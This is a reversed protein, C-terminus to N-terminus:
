DAHLHEAPDSRTATLAAYAVSAAAVLLIVTPVSTFTMPDSPSVGYLQGGIRRTVVLAVGVGLVTGIGAVLLGHGVVTRVIRADTAGLAMRIAIERLSDRVMSVFLSVCGLVLLAIGFLALGSSAVAALREARVRDGLFTDLSQVDLVQVDPDLELILDRLPAIAGDAAGVTRVYVTRTGIGDTIPRWVCGRPEALLDRCRERAVVGVVRTPEGTYLFRKGVADGGPWLHDALTRNVVVDRRGDDESPGRGAVVPVRVVDFIGPTSPEGDVDIAGDPDDLHAATGIGGPYPHLYMYAASTAWPQARVRNLIEEHFATRDSRHDEVPTIRAMLLTTPDAYEPDADVARAFGKAYLAATVALVVALGVQFALLALRPTPRIRGWGWRSADGKIAVMPHGFVAFMPLLALLLATGSGAVVSWVLLRLDVAGATSLPTSGRIPTDLYIAPTEALATAVGFGVTASAVATAGALLLAETALQRMVRSRGAGLATRLAIERRRRAARGFFFNAVNTCAAILILGCVALLAGLFSWAEDRRSIRVERLPGVHIANTEITSLRVEPLADVWRQARERAVEIDLGPELRGLIPFFTVPSRLMVEMGVAPATHMPLWLDTPTNWDLTLGEYVEPMVGIIRGEGDQLRIPRGVVDPDGGFRSQWLAWSLVVVPQAGEVNDEPGILRGVQPRVGLLPFYSGSVFQYVVEDGWGEGGAYMALKGYTAVEVFADQLERLAEYQPHSFSFRARSDGERGRETLRMSVVRDPEVVGTPPRNLLWDVTGYVATCAGVALGLSVVAVVFGPTKLLTRTAFRLDARFDDLSRRILGIM